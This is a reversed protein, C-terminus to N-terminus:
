DNKIGKLQYKSEYYKFHRLLTGVSNFYAILFGAYGDLFGLKFIYFKFFFWFSSLIGILLNSNKKNKEMKLANLKSYKNAKHVLEDIDKYPFQYIANKLYGLKKKSKIEYSEHVYDDSFIMTNKRFLQPQRYDPYFGSYRIWQGFFFNKRPVWYLDYNIDNKNIIEKIENEVEKTCVEDSDLSFIWDNQCSNIGQNRLDGFNKFEVQVIKCNYKKAMEITGDTSNSDIIVIENCWLASKICNEIKDISNFTLIYCSIKTM